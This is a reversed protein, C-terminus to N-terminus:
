DATTSENAYTIRRVHPEDYYYHGDIIGDFVGLNEEMCQVNGAPGSMSLTTVTLHFLVFFLFSCFASGGGTSARCACSALLLYM